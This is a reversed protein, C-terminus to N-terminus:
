RNLFGHEALFAASISSGTGASEGGSLLRELYRAIVDVEINVSAGSALQGLTTEQLTHPIINLEFENNYVANVTLSVGDICVSGKTAIYRALERPAAIRLRVSRGETEVAVVSGIGDVHGSVLHGGLRTTPMVAQELNVQQGVQLDSFTTCSLTEKSVDMWLGRGSKGTVTLCVGSVAVSDGLQVTESDLKDAAVQIRVDSGQNELAVIEGTSEIIGTFM